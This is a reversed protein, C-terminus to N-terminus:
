WIELYRQWVKSGLNFLQSGGFSSAVKFCVGCVVCWVARVVCWVGCVVCWVGCMVCWVSTEWLPPFRLWGSAEGVRLGSPISRKRQEPSTGLPSAAEGGGPVPRVDGM